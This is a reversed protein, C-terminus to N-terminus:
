TCHAATAATDPVMVTLVENGMVRVLGCNV